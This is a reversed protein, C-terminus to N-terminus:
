CDERRHGSEEAGVSDRDDRNRVVREDELHLATNAPRRQPVDEAGPDFPTPISEVEMM